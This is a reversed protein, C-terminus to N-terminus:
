SILLLRPEGAVTAPARHVCPLVPSGPWECAIRWLHGVGFSWPKAGPTPAYHLDYHNETLWERYAADDVGGYMKLLEARIEPVNVKRKAEENRLGDSPSGFYTCLWTDAEVPASDVHFSFVDTPVPGPEEDRPYGDICNLVPDRGFGRLLRLDELMQEVARKGGAELRLGKLKAEDLNTVGGDEALHGSGDARQRRCEKVVEGFDGALSREWCLANVGDAFSTSALEQFSNVRKLGKSLSLAPRASSPMFSYIV